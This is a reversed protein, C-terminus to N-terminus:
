APPTFDFPAMDAVCSSDPEGDPADLFQTTISRACDSAYNYFALQGHAGAPFEYFRGNVLGPLMQRTINPTVGIDYEGALVLTPIESVVLEHQADDARGVRWLDCGSPGIPLGLDPDLILPALEPVDRAADALDAPTIFSILDRCVYSMTKGEAFFDDADSTMPGTGLRERYVSRLEGHASRWIEDLVLHIREPEFRDGPFIGSLADLYFIVGDVVLTIPRPEFAPMSIPAPHEQLQHVLDFFLTRINPYRADCAANAACGAFIRELQATLGRFYDLHPQHHNSQGSDMVVSRIGDPHLRMYTLALVGDASWAVLNWAAYGLARRLEDLDAASEASNFASLDTGDAALRDRCAEIAARYDEDVSSDVFPKSYFASERADDFEPCGLRPESVGTGRTDVLIVDRDEVFEAGAFYAGMAFPSIAGFSPGGDLFVIPDPRPTPTAAHVVAAAVTITRGDPLARNEPVTISGCTVELRRPALHPPCDQEVFSPVGGTGTSTAAAPAPVSALCAVALSSAVVIAGWRVDM